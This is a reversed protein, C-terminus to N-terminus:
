GIRVKAMVQPNLQQQMNGMGTQIGGTGGVLLNANNNGMMNATTTVTSRGISNNMSTNMSMSSAISFPGNQMMPKNNGAMLNGPNHINQANTSYSVMTASANTLNSSVTTMAGGTQNMGM